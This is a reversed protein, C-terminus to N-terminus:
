HIIFLIQGLSFFVFFNLFIKRQFFKAATKEGISNTTSSSFFLDDFDFWVCVLALVVFLCVFHVGPYFLKKKMMIM